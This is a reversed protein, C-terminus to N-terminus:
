IWDIISGIATGDGVSAGTVRTTRALLLSLGDRAADHILTVDFRASSGAALKLTQTRANYDAGATASLAPTPFNATGVTVSAFAMTTHPCTSVTRTVTFSLTGSSELASADKIWIDGVCALARGVDIRPVSIGNRDDRVVTGTSRLADLVAAVSWTRRVSTILAWAGAVHPASMSTGTKACFLGGDMTRQFDPGADLCENNAAPVSSLVNEGPALLSLSSASNSFTNVVDDDNTSGVSVATSICAPLSLGDTFGNNGSSVVTAIGFSRLNDIAAKMSPLADDCASTFDTSVGFSINVAAVPVSTRRDLVFELGAVQDEMESLPCPVGDSGGPCTFQGTIQVSVVRAASAVGSFESGRGAAIGAVHTGHDCRDSFTCPEGAGTGTQSTLGNPCSAQTSFCAQDVVRGGFFPHTSEVGTDLIAVARGTGTQGIARAAPVGIVQTTRDLTPRLLLDRELSAVGPDARLQRVGYLDVSLAIFPISVYRRRVIEGTLRGLLADQLSRIGARQADRDSASLLGEPTFPTRLGVIATVRPQAAAELQSGTTPSPHRTSFDTPVVLPDSAGSEMAEPGYVDSTETTAGALQHAAAFASVVLVVALLRRIARV